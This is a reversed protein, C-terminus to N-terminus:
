RLKGGEQILEMLHFPSVRGLKGQPDVISITTQPDAHQSILQALEMDSPAKQDGYGRRQEALAKLNSIYQDQLGNIANIKTGAPDAPNLGSASSAISELFKNGKLGALQPGLESLIGQTAAQTIKQNANATFPQSWDGELVQGVSTRALKRKWDDSVLWGHDEGDSVGLGSSADNSATRLEQFRQMARPLNSAAVDYTKTADALDTGIGTAHATAGSKAAEMAIKAQDNTMGSFNPVNVAPQLNGVPAAPPPLGDLQIGGPPPPIPGNTPPAPQNFDSAPMAPIANIQPPPALAVGPATGYPLTGAYNAGLTEQTKVYGPQTQARIWDPMAAGFNKQQETPGAFKSLLEAGARATDPNMLLYTAYQKVAEPDGSQVGAAMPSLIGNGDTGQAYAPSTGQAGNGSVAGQPADSSTPQPAYLDRYDSAAKQTGLTGLLGEAIKNLGEYPSISYAVGNISRNNTDIPTMGETQLAQALAAQRQLAFLKANADGTLLPNYTLAAGLAQGSAM